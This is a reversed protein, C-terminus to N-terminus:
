ASEPPEEDEVSDQSTTTAADATAQQYALDILRYTSHFGSHNQFHITGLRTGLGRIFCWYAWNQLDSKLALMAEPETSNNGLKTIIQGDRVQMELSAGQHQSDCFLHTLVRIPKSLVADTSYMLAKRDAGQRHVQQHRVQRARIKQPSVPPVNFTQNCGQVELTNYGTLGHYSIIDVDDYNEVHPTSSATSHEKWWDVDYKVTNAPRNSANVSILPRWAGAAERIWNIVNSNFVAMKDHASRPENMIEFIINGRGKLVQVVKKVFAKQVVQLNNTPSIFFTQRARDADTTNVLHRNGWEPAGAPNDSLDNNWPSHTWARFNGEDTVNVFDQYNFLCIQLNVGALAAADAFTTLRNFYEVNWQGRVVAQHVQWKYVRNREVSVFPYLDQPERGDASVRTGNTLWIRLLNIKHTGLHHFFAKWTLTQDSWKLMKACSRPNTPARLCEPLNRNPPCPAGNYPLEFPTNGDPCALGKDPKKDAVFLDYHGGRLVIEKGDDLIKGSLRNRSLQPM